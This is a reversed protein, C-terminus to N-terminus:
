RSRYQADQDRADAVEEEAVVCKADFDSPLQGLANGSVTRVLPRNQFERARGPRRPKQIRIFHDDEEVGNGAAALHSRHVNQFKLHILRAGGPCHGLRM